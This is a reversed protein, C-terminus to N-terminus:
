LDQVGTTEGGGFDAPEHRTPEGDSVSGHSDDGAPERHGDRYCPWCPLELGANWDGCDCDEPRGDDDIDDREDSDGDDTAEIVGGDSAVQRPGGDVHMGMQPDVADTQCWAPIAREGTAFAVRRIHKCRVERYQHDPCTCRSEVADVRYSSGSETTVDYVDGGHELVTMCETLARVDRQDFEIGDGHPKHGATEYKTMPQQGVWRRGQVLLPAKQSRSCAPSNSSYRTAM